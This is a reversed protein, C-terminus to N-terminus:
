RRSWTCAAAKCSCGCLAQTFQHLGTKGPGYVAATRKPACGLRRNFQVGANNILCALGPHEGVLCAVLAPLGDIDALDAPLPTINPHLASLARRENLRSGLASVPTGAGALQLALERGIGSSAGTALTPPLPTQDLRRTQMATGSYAAGCRM